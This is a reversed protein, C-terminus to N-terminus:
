YNQKISLVVYHEIKVQLLTKLFLYVIHDIILDVSLEPFLGKSVLFWLIEM